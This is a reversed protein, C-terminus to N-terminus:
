GNQLPEIGLNLLVRILEDKVQYPDTSSTSSVNVM